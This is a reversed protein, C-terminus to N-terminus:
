AAEAMSDDTQDHSPYLLSNIIEVQRELLELDERAHRKDAASLASMRSETAQTIQDIIMLRGELDIKSLEGLKSTDFIDIEDIPSHEINEVANEQAQAPSDEIPANYSEFGM